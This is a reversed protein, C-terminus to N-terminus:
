NKAVVRLWNQYAKRDFTPSKEEGSGLPSVPTVTVTARHGKNYIEYPEHLQNFKTDFQVPSGAKITSLRRVLENRSDYGRLSDNNIELIVDGPKLGGEAAPGGKEV